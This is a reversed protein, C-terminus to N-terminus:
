ILIGTSITALDRIGIGEGLNLARVGFNLNGTGFVAEASVAMIFPGNAPAPARLGIFMRRDKVAVGEIGVGSLSQLSPGFQGAQM